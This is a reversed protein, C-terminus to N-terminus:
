KVANWLMEKLIDINIKQILFLNGDISPDRLKIELHGRCESHKLNVETEIQTDEIVINPDLAIAIATPDFVFYGNAGKQRYFQLAKSVIEEVFGSKKTDNKLWVDDTWQFNIPHDIIAEGAIIRTPCM